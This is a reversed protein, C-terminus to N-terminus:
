ELKLLKNLPLRSIFDNEKLVVWLTLKDHAIRHVKNQQIIM